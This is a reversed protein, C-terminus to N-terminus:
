WDGGNEYNKSAILEECQAAFSWGSDCLADRMPNVDAEPLDPVEPLDLGLTDPDVRVQDLIQQIEERKEELKAAVDERLQEMNNGGGADVIAQAEEEWEDRAQQVRDELTDDYFESVAAVALEELLQPQLAALADIETQAVGMASQWKDARKETDKLPTSPLGYERVQGPILGVRHVQFSMAQFEVVRLAQLKRSLSIPMQWGAPDCDSFYFVVLPRQDNVWSRAMTYAQTDSIEGTPLYVDAGFRQAVRTLVPRLSSKEGVLVFHYPQMPTFGALGALPRLDDVGPITVEFDTWIYPRPGPPIFLQVSPEDNRQDVIRDFPIYGLWRACKAPTALWQWDADTNTYPQGNPKAKGIFAYHLGRLHRPGSLQLEAITDAFWQADRHGAATDVRFPDNQPALVTLSKMSGGAMDLASRLSGGSMMAEFLSM